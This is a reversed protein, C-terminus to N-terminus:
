FCWNLKVNVGDAIGLARWTGPMLDIGAGNCLYRSHALGDLRLPCYQKLYSEARPRANGFVYAEDDESWPGVDMVTAVVIVENYYLQVPLHKAGTCPLAVGLFGDGPWPGTSLEQPEMQTALIDVHVFSM